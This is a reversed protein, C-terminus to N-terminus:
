VCWDEIKLASVRSFERCNHTILCGHRSLVTAAILLDNPGIPSGKKELAYRVDAYAESADRDFPVIEFPYLFKELVDAAHSPNKSSRVGLLLEARVIAPIKIRAASIQVLRSPIKPYTGKLAYICINTDLFYIM